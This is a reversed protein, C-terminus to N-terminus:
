KAALVFILQGHGKIPGKIFLPKGPSMKADADVLLKDNQFVQVNLFIGTEDVKIMRTSLYVQESPIFWREQKEALITENEAIVTYQDYGFNKKLGESYAKFVSPLPSPQDQLTALVLASWLAHAKPAAELFTSDPQEIAPPKNPMLAILLGLGAILAVTGWLLLATPRLQKGRAKFM